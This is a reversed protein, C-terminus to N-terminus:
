EDSNTSVLQASFSELLYTAFAHAQFRAQIYYEDGDLPDYGLKEIADYLNMIANVHILAQYEKSSVVEQDLHARSEKEKKAAKAFIRRM